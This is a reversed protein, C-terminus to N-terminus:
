GHDQVKEEDRVEQERSETAKGRRRTPGGGEAELYAAVAAAILARRKPSAMGTAEKAQGGVRSLRALGASLGVFLFSILILLGFAVLTLVLASGYDNM